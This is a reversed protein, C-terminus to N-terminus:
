WGNVGDLVKLERPSHHPLGAHAMDEGCMANAESPRGSGVCTHESTPSVPQLMEAPPIRYTSVYQRLM